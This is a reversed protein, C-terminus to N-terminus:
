TLFVRPYKQGPSFFCRGDDGAAADSHRGGGPSGRAVSAGRDAAQLEGGRRRDGAAPTVRGGRHRRCIRDRWARLPALVPDKERLLGFMARMSEDLAFLEEAPIGIVGAVMCAVTLGARTFGDGV